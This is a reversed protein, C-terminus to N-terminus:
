SPLASIARNGGEKLDKILLPQSQNFSKDQADVYMLGEEDTSPPNHSEAESPSEMQVQLVTPQSTNYFPSYRIHTDQQAGQGVKKKWYKDRQIDHEITSPTWQESYINDPKNTVKNLRDSQQLPLEEWEKQDKCQPHFDRHTVTKPKPPAKAANNHVKAASPKNHPEPDAPPDLAPSPPSASPPKHKEPADHHHFDDDDRDDDDEYSHNHEEM